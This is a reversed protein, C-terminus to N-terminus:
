SVEKLHQYYLKRYEDFEATGGNADIVDSPVFQFKIVWVTDFPNWPKKTIAVLTKRYQDLTYGGEQYADRETMMGLPQRYVDLIKITGFSYATYDHRCKQESGVKPANKSFRRTYQKIGMWMPFVHYRRFMM